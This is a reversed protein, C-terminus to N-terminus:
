FHGTLRGWAVPQAPPVTNANKQSGSQNNADMQLTAHVLIDLNGNQDLGVDSLQDGFKAWLGPYTEELKRAQKSKTTVMCGNGQGDTFQANNDPCSSHCGDSGCCAGKEKPKPPAKFASLNAEPPQNYSQYDNIFLAPQAERLSDIQPFQAPNNPNALLVLPSPSVTPPQIQYQQVAPTYAPVGSSAPSPQYQVPPSAAPKRLFFWVAAVAAIIGAIIPFNKKM